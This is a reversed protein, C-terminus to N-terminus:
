MEFSPSDFPVTHLLTPRCLQETFPVSLKINNMFLSGPSEDNIMVSSGFISCQEYISKSHLFSKPDMECLLSERVEDGWSDYRYFCGVENVTSWISMKLIRHARKM